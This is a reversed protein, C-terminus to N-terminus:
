EEDEEMTLKELCGECVMMGSEIHEFTEDERLPVGCQECDFETETPEAMTRMGEKFRRNCEAPTYGDNM